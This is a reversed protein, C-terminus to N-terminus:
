CGNYPNRIVPTPLDPNTTDQVLNTRIMVNAAAIAHFLIDAETVLDAVAIVMDATTREVLVAELLLLGSTDVQWFWCTTDGHRRLLTRFFDAELVQMDSVYLHTNLWLDAYSSLVTSPLVHIEVPQKHVLTRTLVPKISATNDGDLLALSAKIWEDVEVYGDTQM